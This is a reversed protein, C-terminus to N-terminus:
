VSICIDFNRFFTVINKTLTNFLFNNFAAVKVLLIVRWIYSPKWLRFLLTACFSFFSSPNEYTYSITSCIQFCKAPVNQWTSYFSRKFNQLLLTSIYTAMNQSFKKCIPIQICKYFYYNLLYIKTANLIKNCIKVHM